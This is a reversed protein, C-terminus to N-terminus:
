MENDQLSELFRNFTTFQYNENILHDILWFYWNYIVPYKQHDYYVDHFNIVFVEQNAVVAKDIAKLTNDKWINIDQNTQAQPVLSVDMISIPVEWLNGVKFPQIIGLMTSDFSYGAEEFMEHSYGSLRLYHTRIGFHDLGSLEKFRNYEKTIGSIKKTEMGHVGAEHGDQLIKQIFPKANQYNYSLRIANDMGMFFCAKLGKEQYLELLEPIRHMRGHMKLREKYLRWDIHRNLLGITNRYLTFPLTMDKLYHESWYLHDVDHSIIIKM